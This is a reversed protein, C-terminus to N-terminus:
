AIILYSILQIFLESIGRIKNGGHCTKTTLICFYSAMSLSFITNQIWISVNEIWQSIPLLYFWIAVVLGSEYCTSYVSMSNYWWIDAMVTYILLKHLNYKQLLLIFYRRRDIKLSILFSLFIYSSSTYICIYLCCYVSKM